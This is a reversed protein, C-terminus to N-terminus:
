YFKYNNTIDKLFSLNTVGAAVGKKFYHQNELLLMTEHENVYEWFVKKLDEPLAKAILEYKKNNEKAMKEYEKFEKMGNLNDYSVHSFENEIVKDIVFNMEDYKM